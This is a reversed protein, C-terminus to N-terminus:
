GVPEIKRAAQYCQALQDDDACRYEDARRHRPLYKIFDAGNQIAWRQRLQKGSALPEV